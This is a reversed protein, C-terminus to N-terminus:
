GFLALSRGILEDAFAAKTRCDLRERRGGAWFLTPTITEGGMTSLPNHVLLDLHKRALKAAARDLAAPTDDDLSFGVARQGPRKAAALGALVDPTAELELTLRGGGPLRALKGAIPTIPRYDAVAAAMVLLDHRPWAEALAAQLEATTEVRVVAVGAPPAADAVGLVLTTPWGRRAAAAAVAVGLRGSSRNGMFRVADIPERTAGASILLRPTM